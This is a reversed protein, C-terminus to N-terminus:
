SVVVAVPIGILAAGVALSDWYKAAIFTSGLAGTMIPLKSRSKVKRGFESQINVNPFICDDASTSLGDPVGIAGYSRGTIRLTEYSIGFHNTTNSGSTVLGFDRPYLMERGYMASMWSECKGQCDARCLTCLSSESPNGRNATGLADNRKEFQLM